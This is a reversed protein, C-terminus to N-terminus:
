VFSTRKELYGFHFKAAPRKMVHFRFKRFRQSQWHDKLVIRKRAVRLAHTMTEETIDDYLAISKIPNIGNATDITETFMPDFYVVDFSDSPCRKLYSLHDSSVVEIRKLAATFNDDDAVHSMLGHKVIYSLVREGEVGVVKGTQGTVLSAIIADSALGLTCDLISMGETLKTAVIFPDHKGNLWRKYRLMAVNPHFFIPSTAGLPYYEMRKQGVILIPTEYKKQLSLLSRKNRPVYPIQLEFSVKKALPELELQQKLATTVIM